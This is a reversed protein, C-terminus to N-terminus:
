DQKFFQKAENWLQATLLNDAFSQYAQNFEDPLNLVQYLHILRVTLAENDPDQQLQQNLYEQAETFQSNEIYSDTILLIDNQNDNDTSVFNSLLNMANNKFLCDEPLFPDADDIKNNLALELFSNQQKNLTSQASHWLRQRLAQGSHGLIIFLDCLASFAQNFHKRYLFFQIRQLHCSLNDPKEWLQYEFFSAMSDPLFDAKLSVQKNSVKNLNNSSGFYFTPDLAINNDQIYCYTPTM